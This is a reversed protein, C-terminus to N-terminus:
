IHTCYVFYLTHLIIVTHLYDYHFFIMKICCHEVTCRKVTSELRRRVLKLINTLWDTDATKLCDIQSNNFTLDLWWLTELYMDDRPQPVTLFHWFWYCKQVKSNWLSIFCCVGSSISIKATYVYLIEERDGPSLIKFIPKCKGFNNDSMLPSVKKPCLM